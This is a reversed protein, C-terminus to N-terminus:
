LYQNHTVEVSDQEFKIIEDLNLGRLDVHDLFTIEGYENM